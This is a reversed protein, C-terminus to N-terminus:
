FRVFMDDIFEHTCLHFWPQTFEYVCMSITYIYIYIYMFIYIYIQIYPIYTCSVYM